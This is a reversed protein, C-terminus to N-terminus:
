FDGAVGDGDQRLGCKKCICEGRELEAVKSRLYEIEDAADIILMDRADQAFIHQVVHESFISDPVNLKHQELWEHAEREANVYERRLFAMCYNGTVPDAVRWQEDGQAASRMQLTDVRKRDSM